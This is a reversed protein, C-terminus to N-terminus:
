LKRIKAEAQKISDLILVLADRQRVLTEKSRDLEAKANEIDLVKQYADGDYNEARNLTALKEL